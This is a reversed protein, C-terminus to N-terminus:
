LLDERDCLRGHGPAFYTRGSTKAPDSLAAMMNLGNIM